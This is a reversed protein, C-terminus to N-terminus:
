VCLTNKYKKLLFFERTLLFYYSVVKRGREYAIESQPIVMDVPVPDNGCYIYMGTTQSYYFIM